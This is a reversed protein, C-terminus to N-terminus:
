VRSGMDAHGPSDGGGPKLAHLLVAVYLWPLGAANVKAVEAGGAAAKSFNCCCHILPAHEWLWEQSDQGACLLLEFLSSSFEFSTEGISSTVLFGILSFILLM